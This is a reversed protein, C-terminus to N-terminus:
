TKPEDLPIVSEIVAGLAECTEQVIPDEAVEQFLAAQHDQQDKVRQESVTRQTETERRGVQITKLGPFFDRAVGLVQSDAILRSGNAADKESAFAVELQGDAWNLM